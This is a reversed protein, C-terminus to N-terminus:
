RQRNKPSGHESLRDVQYRKVVAPTFEAVRLHGIWRQVRGLDYEAFEPARHKARYDELFEDAAEAITQRERERQEQQLVGQHGDLLLRRAAAEVDLADEERRKRTSKSYRRGNLEFNYYYIGRVVFLSM